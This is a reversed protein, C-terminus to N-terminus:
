YETGPLSHAEGRVCKVGDQEQWALNSLTQRQHTPQMTFTQAGTIPCLLLHLRFLPTDVERLERKEALNPKLGSSRSEPNSCDPNSCSALEDRIRTSNKNRNSVHVECRTTAVVPSRYIQLEIHM